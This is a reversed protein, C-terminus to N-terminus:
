QLTPAYFWENLLSRVLGEKASSVYNRVVAQAISRSIPLAPRQACHCCFYLKVACFPDPMFTGLKPGSTASPQTTVVDLFKLGAENSYRELYDVFPWFYSGFIGFNLM